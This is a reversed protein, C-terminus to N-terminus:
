PAVLEDLSVRATRVHTYGRDAETWAFRLEDSTRALRPYHGGTVGAVSLAPSRGGDPKVRRVRFESGTSTLEVWSVAATGDPLMAVDVQGRSQGDDVRIPADFTRGGDSSYAVFTWGEGAAATFWAVAVQSGQAAIAPGNVPCGHITWGDAHVLTPASWKGDVVRVVRIDRVEDDSRDRYAVIIGNTTEAASTQCCECVRTDIATESTQAGDRDFTATWLGM